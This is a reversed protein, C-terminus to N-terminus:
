RIVPTQIQLVGIEYTKNISDYIPIISTFVEVNSELSLNETFNYLTFSEVDNIEGDLFNQSTYVEVTILAEGLQRRLYERGQPNKSFNEFAVFSLKDFENEVNGRESVYLMPSSMIYAYKEFARAEQDSELLEQLDKNNSNNYFSLGLILVLYVIIIIGITEGFKIQARM